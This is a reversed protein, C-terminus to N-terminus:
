FLCAPDRSKKLKGNALIKQALCGSHCNRLNDCSACDDPFPTMLYDRVADLYTSKTWCDHLSAAELSSFTDNAAIDEPAIHKFADCPVIRLNPLITIRDIGSKCQPQHSLMLFNYPSGTRIRFGHERMKIITKRLDINQVRNLVQSSLTKGRGQPVFRLVSTSIAGLSLSLECTQELKRYNNALPVFHLEASLGADSIYKMADCTTEFSGTLRTIEEHQDAEDSFLSFVFREVGLGKLMDVKKKFGNVNGTTYFSVDMAHALARRVVSLIDPYLLPEGGSFSISTTGLSAADDIIRLCRSIPIEDGNSPGANSSCHVCHLNCRYTLELKIERLKFQTEPMGNFDWNM